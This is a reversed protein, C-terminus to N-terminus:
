RKYDKGSQLKRLLITKNFKRLQDEQLRIEIKIRYTTYGSLMKGVVRDVRRFRTISLLRLNM